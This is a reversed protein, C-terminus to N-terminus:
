YLHTGATTHDTATHPKHSPHSVHAMHPRHTTHLRDPRHPRPGNGPVKPCQLWTVQGCFKVM